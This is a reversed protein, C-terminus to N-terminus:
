RETLLTDAKLLLDPSAEVSKSRLPGLLAEEVEQKTAKIFQFQVIIYEPKFSNAIRSRWPLTDAFGSGIQFRVARKIGWGRDIYVDKIEKWPILEDSDFRYRFGDPSVILAPGGVRLTTFVSEALACLYLVIAGFLVAAFMSMVSQAIRRPLETAFGALAEGGFELAIFACILIVVLLGTLYIIPWLRNMSFSRDLTM